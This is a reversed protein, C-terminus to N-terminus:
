VGGGFGCIGKWGYGLFIDWENWCCTNVKRFAVPHVELLFDDEDWALRHAQWEGVGEEVQHKPKPKNNRTPNTQTPSLPAIFTSVRKIITIM